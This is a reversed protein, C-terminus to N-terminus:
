GNSSGAAGFFRFDISERSIGLLFTHVDERDSERVPRVHVTSGDRLVVDTVRDAPYGAPEAMAEIPNQGPTTM